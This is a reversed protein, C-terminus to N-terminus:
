NRQQLDSVKEDRARQELAWEEATRCTRKPLRSGPQNEKKCIKEAPASKEEAGAAATPPFHSQAQAAAAAPLLASSIAAVTMVRRAMFKIKM